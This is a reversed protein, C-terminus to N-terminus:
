SKASAEGEVVFEASAEAEGELEMQGGGMTMTMYGDLAVEGKIEYSSFRGAKVNWLLEGELELSLDVTFEDMEMEMQESAEDMQEALVDGLDLSVEANLTYSIVALEGEDDGSLGAFKCEIIAEEMSTRLTDLIEVPIEVSEESDLKSAAYFDIGPVMLAAMMEGPVEWTDGVSVEGEPLLGSMEIEAALSQILNDEVEADEDVLSRTYLEGEEDWVFEVSQGVLEDFSGEESNGGGEATGEVTNYTRVLKTARGDAVSKLVDLVEVSYSFVGERESPDIEDMGIPMPQGNMTADVNEIFVTFEGNFTKEIQAGETPSYELRTAAPNLALGLFLASTLLWRSNM